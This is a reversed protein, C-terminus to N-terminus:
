LEVLGNRYASSIYQLPDILDLIKNNDVIMPAEDNICEYNNEDIPNYRSSNIVHLPHKISGRLAALLSERDVPQDADLIYTRNNSFSDPDYLDIKGKVPVSSDPSNKSIDVPAHVSKIDIPQATETTNPPICQLLSMHDQTYQKQNKAIARTTYYAPTTLPNLTNNMTSLFHLIQPNYLNKSIADNTTANSYLRSRFTPSFLKRAEM